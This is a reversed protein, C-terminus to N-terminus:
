RELILVAVTGSGIAYLKDYSGLDASFIQGAALKIGYSSATVSADGIYVPNSLDTNQISVTNPTDIEDAITLLAPTGNLTLNRTRLM